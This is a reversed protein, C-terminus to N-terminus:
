PKPQPPPLLLGCSAHDPAGASNITVYDQTARREMVQRAIVRVDRLIQQGLAIVFSPIVVVFSMDVM